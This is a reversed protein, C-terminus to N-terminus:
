PLEDLFPKELVSNGRDPRKRVYSRGHRKVSARVCAVKITDPALYDGRELRRIVARVDQSAYLV